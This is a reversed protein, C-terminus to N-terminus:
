QKEKIKSILRAADDGAELELLNIIRKRERYMGVIIGINHEIQMIDDFADSDFTDEGISAARAILQAIDDLSWPESGKKEHWDKLLQAKPPLQEEM